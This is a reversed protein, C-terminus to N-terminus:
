LFADTIINLTKSYVLTSEYKSFSKLANESFKKRNKVLSYISHSLEEDGGSIVYGNYSDEILEPIGGVSTSIVPVGCSFSEIIVGPYGEGKYKTPLILGTYNPMIKQVENYDILGKFHINSYKNHFSLYKEESIPGFLDIEFSKLNKFTNIILDIGKSEKIQGVFIFKKPNFNIGYHQTSNRSNPWWESNLGNSEGIKIMYQCEFFVKDTKKLVMLLFSRVIRPEQYLLEWFNGAFKRLYIKKNFIKAILLIPPLLFKVDKYTAHIGVFNQFSIFKTFELIAKLYSKLTSRNQFNTDIVSIKNETNKELFSIYEEFLSTIGGPINKSPLPGLILM